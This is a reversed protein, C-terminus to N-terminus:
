PEARVAPVQEAHRDVRGHLCLRLLDLGLLGLVLREARGAVGVAVAAVVDLREGRRAVAAVAAADDAVLEVVVLRGAQREAVAAEVVASWSLSSSPPLM